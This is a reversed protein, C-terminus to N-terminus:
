RREAVAPNVAGPLPQVTPLLPPEISRSAATITTAGTALNRTVAVIIPGLALNTEFGHLPGALEIGAGFRSEAAPSGDKTYFASAAGALGVVVLTDAARLVSWAPRFPLVRKWQQVGHGRNLARLVNDLSIFYVRREDVVPASIVDAGTRSRWDIRGDRAVLCYLFNDNSGVFVQDGVARTDNPVGGVRREWVMEGTDLQLAIVRGNEVPVFLLGRSASPAGHVPSELNYHWAVTGDASRLAVVATSTAVVLWGESLVPSAVLKESLPLRWSVSGDDTKLAVLAEADAFVLLGDSALM